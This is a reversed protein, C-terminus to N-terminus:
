QKVARATVDDTPMTLGSAAATAKVLAVTNQVPEQSSIEATPPKSALSLEMADLDSLGQNFQQVAADRSSSPASPGSSASVERNERPPFFRRVGVFEPLFHGSVLKDFDEKKDVSVKFSKWRSQPNSVQEVKLVGINQKEKLYTYVKAETSTSPDCRYIFVQPVVRPKPPVGRFDNDAVKVKGWVADRYSKNPPKSQQQSSQALNQATAHASANNDLRAAKSLRRRYQRTFSYPEEKTGDFVEMVDDTDDPKRKVQVSVSGGRERIPTAPVASVDAQPTSVPRAIFNLLTQQIGNIQDQLSSQLQEFKEDVARSKNSSFNDRLFFHMDESTCAIIPMTGARDLEQLKAFLGSFAHVARDKETPIVNATVNPGRYGYHTVPDVQTFLMQRAAKISPVDFARITADQIFEASHSSMLSKIYTLCANLIIGQMIPPESDNNTVSM